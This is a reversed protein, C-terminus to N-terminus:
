CALHTQHSEALVMLQLQVYRRPIKMITDAHHELHINKATAEYLIDLVGLADLSVGFGQWDFVAPNSMTLVDWFM